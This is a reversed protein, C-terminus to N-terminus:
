NTPETECTDFKGRDVGIAFVLGQRTPIWLNDGFESEPFSIIQQRDQVLGPRHGRHEDVVRRLRGLAQQRCDSM